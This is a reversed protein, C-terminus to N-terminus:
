GKCIGRSLDAKKIYGDIFDKDKNLHDKNVVIAYRDNVMVSNYLWVNGSYSRAATSALPDCFINASNVIFLEGKTYTAQKQKEAPKSPTKNVVSRATIKPKYGSMEQYLIASPNSAPAEVISQNSPYLEDLVEKDIEDLKYATVYPLLKVKSFEKNSLKKIATNFDWVQRIHGSRFTLLWDDICEEDTDYRKFRYGRENPSDLVIFDANYRNNAKRKMVNHAACLKNADSESVSNLYHLASSIILSALIKRKKMISKAPKKLTKVIALNDM